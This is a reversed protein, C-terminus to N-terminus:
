ARWEISIRDPDFRGGVAAPSIVVRELVAALIARRQDTDLEPWTARLVGPRAVPSLVSRADLAERQSRASALRQEIGARARLWEAKTVEGAAFADALEALRDELLEVDDSPQPESATATALAPTDLRAMVVEVVLDETRTGQIAVHGCGNTEPRVVCVYRRSGDMRAGGQMKAGCKACYILGGLLSTVPRGQKRARPNGLVSRVRDHEDRTLIAPWEAKGVVEGRHVRLGALRPGTLMSKLTTVSWPKGSTSQVKRRNWDFAITRASEGSVVRAVAERIFAAEAEIIVSGSKDYGFARRGGHPKGALAMQERQRRLRESKQESEHRAVAGVVRAVMRGAATGLDFEGAQVTAVDAGAANVVDIFRELEVPSRHLRDPHWAVIAELNGAALDTMMAEYAPRPKGSFASRDDDTFVEAIDWGRAVALKECDERQRKVGLEDGSRDQSIRVYLAAVTM